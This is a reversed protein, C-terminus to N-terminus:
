DRRMGDLFQEIGKRREEYDRRIRRCEEKLRWCEEILKRTQRLRDAESSTAHRAPFPIVIGSV